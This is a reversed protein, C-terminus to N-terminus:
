CSALMSNTGAACMDNMEQLESLVSDFDVESGQGKVVPGPFSHNSSTNTSNSADVDDLKTKSFNECSEDQDVMEEDIVLRPSADPSEPEEVFPPAHESDQSERSMSLDDTSPQEQFVNLTDPTGPIRAGPHPCSLSRDLVLDPGVNLLRPSSNKPPKRIKEAPKQSNKQKNVFKRCAPSLLSIYYANEFIDRFHCVADAVAKQYAANRKSNYRRNFYKVFPELVAVDVYGYQTSGCWTVCATHDYIDYVKAPWYPYSQMKAWVVDGPKIEFNQSPLGPSPQEGCESFSLPSEVKNVVVRCNLNADAAVPGGAADEGSWVM